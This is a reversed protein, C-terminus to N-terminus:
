RWSFIPRTFPTIWCFLLPQNPFTCVKKRQHQTEVCRKHANKFVNEGIEAVGTWIVKVVVTIWRRTNEAFSEIKPPVNARAQGHDLCPSWLSRCHCRTECEFLHIERKWRICGLCGPKAFMSFLEVLGYMCQGFTWSLAPTYYTNRSFVLKYTLFTQLWHGVRLDGM